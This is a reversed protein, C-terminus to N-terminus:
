PLTASSTDMQRCVGWPGRKGCPHNRPPTTVSPAPPMPCTNRAEPERRDRSTAILIREGVAIFIQKLTEDLLGLGSTGQIMRLDGRSEYVALREAFQYGAAGHEDYLQEAQSRLYGAADCGRLRGADNM